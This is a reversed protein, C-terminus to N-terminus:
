IFFIIFYGVVVLYDHKSTSDDDNAEELDMEDSSVRTSLSLCCFVM